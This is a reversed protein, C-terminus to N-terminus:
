SSGDHHQFRGNDVYEQWCRRIAADKLGYSSRNELTNLRGRENLSVVEKLSQCNSTILEFRARGGHTRPPYKTPDPMSGLGESKLDSATVVLSGVSRTIEIHVVNIEHKQKPPWIKNKAM